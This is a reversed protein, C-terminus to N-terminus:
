YSYHGRAKQKDIVKGILQFAIIEAVIVVLYGLSGPSYKGVLWFYLMLFLSCVGGTCSVGWKVWENISYARFTAASPEKPSPGIKSLLYCNELIDCLWALFQGWALVQFISKGAPTTLKTSTEMCLLFISGYAGVMFLFDIYLQGKLAAIVKRATNGPLAYIGKILNVIERGKAAFELDLISFKRITGDNTYFRRGQASMVLTALQMVGFTICFWPWIEILLKDM